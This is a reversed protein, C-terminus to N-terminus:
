RGRLRCRCHLNGGGWRAVGRFSEQGLLEQGGLGRGEGKTTRRQRGHGVWWGLHRLRRWGGGRRRRPVQRLRRRRRPHKHRLRDRRRFRHRPMERQRRVGLMEVRSRVGEGLVRSCRGPPCRALGGGEAADGRVVDRRACAVGDRPRRRVGRHVIPPGLCAANTWLMAGGWSTTRTMGHATAMM